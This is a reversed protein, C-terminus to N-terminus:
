QFLCTTHFTMMQNLKKLSAIVGALLCAPLFPCVYIFFKHM